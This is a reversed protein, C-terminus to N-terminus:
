NTKINKTTTDTKGEDDTVTLTANIEGNNLAQDRCTTNSDTNIFRFVAKTPVSTNIDVCNTPFTHTLSWAYNTISQNSEDNDHSRNGDFIIPSEVNARDITYANDRAYYTHSTSNIDIIATPNEYKIVAGLSDSDCDGGRDGCGNLLVIALAVTTISLIKKM